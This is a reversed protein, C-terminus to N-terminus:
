KSHNMFPKALIRGKSRVQSHMFSFLSKQFQFLFNQDTWAVLSNIKIDKKCISWNPLFEHPLSRNKNRGYKLYHHYYNQAYRFINNSIRHLIHSPNFCRFSAKSIVHCINVVCLFQSLFPISFIFRFMVDPVWHYLFQFEVPM